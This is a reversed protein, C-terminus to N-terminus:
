YSSNIEGQLVPYTALSHEFVEAFLEFCRRGAQASASREDFGVDLFPEAFYASYKEFRVDVELERSLEELTYFLFCDTYGSEACYRRCLLEDLDDVFLEGVHEALLAFT